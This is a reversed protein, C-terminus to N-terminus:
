LPLLWRLVEEFVVASDNRAGTVNAPDVNAALDQAIRTAADAPTQTHDGVNRCAFRGLILQALAFGAEAAQGGEPGIPVPSLILV